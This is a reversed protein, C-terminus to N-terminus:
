LTGLRALGALCGSSSREVWMVRYPITQRSDESPAIDVVQGAVLIRLALAGRDRKDIQM